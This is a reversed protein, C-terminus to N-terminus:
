RLAAIGPLKDERAVCLAEPVWPAQGDDFPSQMQGGIKSRQGIAANRHGWKWAQIGDLFSFTGDTGTGLCYAVVTVM